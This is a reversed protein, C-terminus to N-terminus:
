RQGHAACIPCQSTACRQWDGQQQCQLEKFHYCHIRGPISFVLMLLSDMLQQISIIYKCISVLNQNKLSDNEGNLLEQMSLQIFAQWEENEIPPSQEIECNDVKKDTNEAANKEASAIM